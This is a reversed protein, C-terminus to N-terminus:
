KEEGKNKLKDLNIPMRTIPDLLTNTKDDFEFCVVGFGKCKKSVKDFYGCNICDISTKVKELDINYLM